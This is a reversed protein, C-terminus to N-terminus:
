RRWGFWGNGWTNNYPNAQNKHLEQQCSQLSYELQQIQLLQEDEQSLDGCGVAMLTILLLIYKKM